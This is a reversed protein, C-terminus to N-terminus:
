PGPRWHPVRGPEGEGCRYGAAIGIGPVWVLADGHFLLPLRSREYLPVDHEQLLNKLTRTPRAPDLRAASVDVGEGRLIRLIPRGLPDDGLVGAWRAAHGLRALAIAVNSEAGAFTLRVPAHVGLPAHAPGNLVAM